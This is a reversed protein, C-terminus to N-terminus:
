TTGGAILAAITHPHELPHFHTGPLLKVVCGATTVARWAALDAYGIGPDDTGGVATVPVDVPGPEPHYAQALRADDRVIPLILELLDAAALLEAPMGGQEALRDLLEEDDRLHLDHQRAATDLPSVSSSAYLHAVPRGARRLSRLAEFGVLAGFSHGFVTLSAAREATVDAAIETAVEGLCAAFEEGLRQGHGPLDYGLVRIAQPLHRAIPALTAGGSGGPPLLLVMPPEPGVGPALELLGTM